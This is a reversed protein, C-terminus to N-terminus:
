EPRDLDSLAAGLHGYVAGYDSGLVTLDYGRDLMEAADHVFVGGLCVDADRVTAEVEDVADVVEPHDFELPHGLAHSLDGPGLFVFDLGPLAVLDDLDDVIRDNEIMVGVHATEDERSLFEADLDGGWLSARSSGIGRSGPSGDSARFRAADVAAAAADVSEVRPVLVNRVGTDLVKRIRAPHAGPEGSPLRVVLEVGALDAARALDKLPDADFPSVGGHELDVFAFDLDLAGFIEIVDPSCSVAIGGVAGGSGAPDFASHAM